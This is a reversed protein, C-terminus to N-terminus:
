PLKPSFLMNLRTSHIALLLTKIYITLMYANEMPQFLKSKPFFFHWHDLFKPNESTKNKNFDFYSENEYTIKLTWHLYKCLIVKQIEIRILWYKNLYKCVYANLFISTFQCIKYLNKPCNIIVKQTQCNKCSQSSM